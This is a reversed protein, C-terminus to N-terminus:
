TEQLFGIHSAGEAVSRAEAGTLKAKAKRRAFKFGFNWILRNGPNTGRFLIRLLQTDRDIMSTVPSSILTQPNLETVCTGSGAL